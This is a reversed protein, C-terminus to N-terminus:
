DPIENELELEKEIQEQKILRSLALIIGFAFSTIIISTGGRSILPLPQGTVFMAGTCVGIHILAQIVILLPIGIILLRIYEDDTKRSLRYCRFFLVLYLALVILAGEFGTEEFIIAFIYDSFAEPLFDRLKSRGFFRGFPYGNAIAMHSCLEQSKIGNIDEEWLEKDSHGYVRHSWTILRGIYNEIRFGDDKTKDETVQEQEEQDPSLPYQSNIQYLLLLFAAGAIAGLFLTNWLYLGPVKAMFLIGLAAMGMILASSLNEKAIPICMLAIIGLYVLYRKFPLSFNLWRVGSLWSVRLKYYFTDRATIATCLMMILGLKCIEIPQFGGISRTAGKQETGFVITVILLVFGLGYVLWNFAKLSKLSRSQGFLLLVAGGLLFTIHRFAPSTAYHSKNVLQSTASFMEVMSIAILAAYIFWIVRDGRMINELFSQGTLHRETNETEQM